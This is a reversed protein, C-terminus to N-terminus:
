TRSIAFGALNRDQENLLTEDLSMAVLIKNDGPYVTVHLGEQEGSVSLDTMKTGM